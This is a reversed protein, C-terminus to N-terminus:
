HRGSYPALALDRQVLIDFPQGDKVTVTPPIVTNRQMIRQTVQGLVQGAASVAQSGSGVYVNVNAQPEVLAAVGGILISSGFIKWFHNDIEGRMGASGAADVAPMAGLSAGSGDPFIIREFVAAMRDQGVIVSNNYRGYVLSGAPILLYRGSVSDYIDETTRAVIQGPLDSDIPTVTVAPIPTGQVVTYPPVPPDLGISSPRASAAAAAASSGQNRYWADNRNAQGLYGPEPDASAPRAQAGAQDASALLKRDQPSLAPARPQQVLSRLILDRDLPGQAASAKAESSLVIIPSTAKVGKTYRANEAGNAASEEAALRRAVKPQLGPVRSEHPAMSPQARSASEHILKGVDPKERVLAAAEKRESAQQQSAHQATQKGANLYLAVLIGALVLGVIWWHLNKPLLGKGARISDTATVPM